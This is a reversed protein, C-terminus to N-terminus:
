DDIDIIEVEQEDKNGDDVNDEDDEDSEDCEKCIWGYFRSKPTKACPPDLCTKFHYCKSCEDCKVLSTRDGSKGCISCDNLQEQLPPEKKAKPTSKRRDKSIIQESKPKENKTKGEAPDTKKNKPKPTSKTSNSKRKKNTKPKNKDKDKPTDEPVFKEPGKITRRRKRRPGDNDSEENEEESEESSDCETCQWLYKDSRKPMRVLPPDVCALHYHQKCTDCQALLHQDTTEKCTACRNVITNLLKTSEELKGKNEKVHKPKLLSPLHFTRGSLKNLTSHLKNCSTLLGDKDARVKELKRHCEESEKTLAKQEKQLKLLLPGANKLRKNLDKSEMERKYFYNMFEASFNPEHKVLKGSTVAAAVNYGPHKLMGLIEAKKALMICAEPCSSLMRHYEQEPQKPQIIRGQYEMFDQKARQLADKIRRQEDSDDSKQFKHVHSQFSLWGRKRKELENKVSHLKCHAYLLDPSESNDDSETKDPIDSLFGNMQGCTVHFSTRCMGADCNICVGTRSFNDDPCFMCEKSGWMSSRIDELVVTQLTSVDRFGVFPTYLACILHVWKKTDTLKFIGGSNPCLECIPSESLGAKCPECFWPETPADSDSESDSEPQEIDGYCGEHVTIGCNDCELIEDEENSESDLCIGCVLIRKQTTASSEQGQVSEEEEEDESVGDNSAISSEFKGTDGKQIADLIDGLKVMDAQSNDSNDGDDEDGNKIGQNDEEDDEEEESDDDDDAGTFSCFWYYIFQLYCNRIM